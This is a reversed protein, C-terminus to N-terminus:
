MAALAEVTAPSRPGPKRVIRITSAQPSKEGAEEVFTGPSGVHLRSFGGVDGVKRSGNPDMKPLRSSNRHKRFTIQLPAKM